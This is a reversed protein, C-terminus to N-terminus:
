AAAVVDRRTPEWMAQRRGSLANWTAQLVALNSLTAFAPLSLWRPLSREEPWHWAALTLILVLAVGGLPFLAWWGGSAAHLLLGVVGAGLSWPILWRCLKHSFLMWSFTGHRLPNLLERNHKLTQMGRTITRVKRRYERRLSPTRPVLCVADDVSVSRYGHRRATLAASFDRSLGEPVPLLHLDRRIAYLSGSAGVIGDVRTELARLAMEANVYGTEGVNAQLDLDGVSVDRGSAVGVTPDRFRGVLARVSDPHLRISADTNVVLEGRIRPAALNEARTKGGREEVRLLEVGRDAFGRVLDDTGDTSGDSVVLLQLRNRPYDLRLLAEIAAQIQREENYAPLVVTVLPLQDGELAPPADFEGAGRRVGHALLRLMLPYGALTYAPVGIAAGTLGWALSGTLSM